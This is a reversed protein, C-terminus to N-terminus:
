SIRNLLKLPTASVFQSPCVSLRVFPCVSLVFVIHRGCFHSMMSLNWSNLKALDALASVMNCRIYFTIPTQM